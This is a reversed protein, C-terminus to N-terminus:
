CAVWRAWDGRRLAAVTQDVRENEAIVHGARAALPDPLKAALAPEADRLSPIGLAACAQACEARRENYGARTSTASVPISRSWGGTM